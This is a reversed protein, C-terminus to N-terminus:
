AIQIEIRGTRCLTPVRWTTVWARLTWGSRIWWAAKVMVGLNLGSKKAQM